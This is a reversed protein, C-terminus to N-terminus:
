SMDLSGQSSNDISLFVFGEGLLTGMKAIIKKLINKIRTKRLRAMKM